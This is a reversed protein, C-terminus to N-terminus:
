KTKTQKSERCFVKPIVAENNPTLTNLQNLSETLEALLTSSKQNQESYKETSTKVQTLADRLQILEQEFDRAVAM